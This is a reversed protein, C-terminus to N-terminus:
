LTGHWWKHADFNPCLKKSYDRHGHVILPGYQRQLFRVLVELTAWQEKTFNSDAVPSQEAEGMGGVLCVGITEENHGYVHAGPIEDPRGEELVGGRTIVYHYGIDDWGREEVHWRRIEAADVDMDPPTDSCHIIIEKIKRMVKRRTKLDTIVGRVCGPAKAPKSWRIRKDHILSDDAWVGARTLADFLAKEYNDLDRRARTPATLQLDVAVPTTITPPSRSFRILDQILQSYQRGVKSIHTRGQGQRYYHNASPPFPLDLVLM